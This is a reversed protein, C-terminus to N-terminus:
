LETSVHLVHKKIEKKIKYEKIGTMVFNQLAHLISTTDLASHKIQNAKMESDFDLFNM